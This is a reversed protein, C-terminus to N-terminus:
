CNFSDTPLVRASRTNPSRSAEMQIFRALRVIAKQSVLGHVTNYLQQLRHQALDDRLILLPPNAGLSESFVFM